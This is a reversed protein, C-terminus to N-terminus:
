SAGLGFGLALGGALALLCAYFFAVGTAAAHKWFPATFLYETVRAFTAGPPSLAEPGAWQFMLLWGLLAGILLLAYDVLRGQASMFSVVAAAAIARVGVPGREGRRC